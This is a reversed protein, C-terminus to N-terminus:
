KSDVCFCQGENEKQRLDMQLVAADGQLSFDVVAEALFLGELVFGFVQVEPHTSRMVELAAAKLVLVSIYCESAM